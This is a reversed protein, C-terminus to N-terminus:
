PVDLKLLAVITAEPLKGVNLAVYVGFKIFTFISGALIVLTANPLLM